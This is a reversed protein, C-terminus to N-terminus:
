RSSRMPIMYPKGDENRVVVDVGYVSRINEATLVSAPDGVDRIGGGNLMIIRDSYRSALNLDHIAMMVSIGKTKSLETLIEMVELQHKIDLNSTPEDLLLIDVDQALARAILVKQQQGGSTENFNRMALDKIDMLDLMELVKDMDEESSRWSLHPRRGLLVMDFVTAPFVGTMSQPVYGIRKAIEVRSMGSIEQGDLLVEGEPILIRDICRLLTSKGTGNPGVIGLVESPNLGMNIDRLIETSGYSFRLNRIQLRM